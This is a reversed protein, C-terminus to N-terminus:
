REWRRNRERGTARHLIWRRQGRVAVVAQEVTAFVRFATHLRMTRLVTQVFRSPGTLVLEGEHRRAANRGRVLAGLGASDITGARTLDVVINPDVALASEIATDLDAAVDMDIDGTVRVVAVHTTRQVDVRELLAGAPRRSRQRGTAVTKSSGRGAVVACSCNPCRHPGRAFASGSWGVADVAVYVVDADHLGCSDTGTVIGCTDCILQVGTGHPAPVATM